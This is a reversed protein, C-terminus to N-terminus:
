SEDVTVAHYAYNETTSQANHDIDVWLEISYGIGAVTPASLQTTRQASGNTDLKTCEVSQDDIVQDDNKFVVRAHYTDPTPGGINIESWYYTIATGVVPFVPSFGAEGILIVQPPPAPEQQDPAPDSM